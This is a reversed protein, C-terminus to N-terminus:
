ECRRGNLVWTGSVIEGMVALQLAVWPLLPTLLVPSVVRRSRGCSPKQDGQRIDNVLYIQRGQSGHVCGKGAPLLRVQQQTHLTGVSARLQDVHQHFVLRVTIRHNRYLEKAVEARDPLLLPDVLPTSLAPTQRHNVRNDEVM